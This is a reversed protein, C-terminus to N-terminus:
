LSVNFEAGLIAHGTIYSEALLIIPGFLVSRTLATFIQHLNETEYTAVRFISFSFAYAATIFSSGGLIYEPLSYGRGMTALMDVLRTVQDLRHCVCVLRGESASNIM